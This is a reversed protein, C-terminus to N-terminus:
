YTKIKYKLKKAYGTNLGDKEENYREKYVYYWKNFLDGVNDLVNAKLDENKKIQLSVKKFGLFKERFDQLRKHM